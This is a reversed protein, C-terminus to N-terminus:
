CLIASERKSMLLVMKKFTANSAKPSLFILASTLKKLDEAICIDTHAPDLVIIQISFSEIIQKV